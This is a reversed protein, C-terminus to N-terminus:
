DARSQDKAPMRAAEPRAPLRRALLMDLGCRRSVGTGIVVLIALLEILNKNVYLYNGEDFASRVGQFPPDALYFMLLLLILCTGTTRTLFGLMFFIGLALMGWSTVLNVIGLRTARGPDALERFETEFPGRAQGLFGAATYTGPGRVKVFGEYSFHWGIGIRLLVLLLVAFASLRAPQGARSM